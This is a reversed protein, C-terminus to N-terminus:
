VSRRSRRARGGGPAGDLAAVELGSDDALTLLRTHAAYSAAKLRANEDFTTGTEEVEPADPFDSLNRLALPLGALLETLERVKGANKTAILLEKHANVYM